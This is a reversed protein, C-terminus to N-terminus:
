RAPDAKEDGMFLPMTASGDANIGDRRLVSSVTRALIEVDLRISRREVYDIDLAFKQRWSLDNRGSVQALGTLGPRVDHRRAQEPSYRPLYQMLLPRPGVLSMDGRVVNWLSPLEDLSTSRLVRGVATLRSEDDTLGRSPDPVAMTRFKILEFPEGDLGPRAQRFFVPRGLTAAVVVAVAIQVPASLLLAPVALVLDFARKRQDRTM